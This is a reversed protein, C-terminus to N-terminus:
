RPTPAQKGEGVLGLALPIVRSASASMQAETERGTTAMPPIVRWFARCSWPTPIAPSATIEARKAAGSMVVAARVQQGQGSM